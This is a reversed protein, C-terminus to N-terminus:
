TYHHHRYYTLVSSQDSWLANMLLENKYFIEKYSLVSSQLVKDFWPKLFFFQPQLYSVAPHPLGCTDLSSVCSMVHEFHSM